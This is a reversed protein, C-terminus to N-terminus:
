GPVEAAAGRARVARLRAFVVIREAASYLPHCASLVLREYGVDRTVWLASPPVIRTREVAYTFRAYPMEVVIEDGPHVDDARRFPAGYTTRHGAIAVTGGLGPLDTEPYHGPGKRLAAGDTGEVIVYRAGIAPIEIRGIPEGTAVDRRAARALFAIRRRESRLTALARRQVETPKVQELEELEDALRDQALKAMLASVPEQWAFTIGADLLMLAGAVILVTSAARLARRM